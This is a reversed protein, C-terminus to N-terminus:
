LLSNNTIIHWNKLHLIDNQSFYNIELAANLLTDFDTLTFIKLNEKLKKINESTFNYTFVALLGIPISGHQKLSEFVYFSSLGTSILDEIILTKKNLPVDGEITAKTGYEKSKTRVYILPLNLTDAIISGYGIAGTAVAAIVQIDTFEENIIKLFSKKIVNRVNPYYYTKRIDCYIPSKIKSTWIFPEDLSIKVANISLLIKAISNNM